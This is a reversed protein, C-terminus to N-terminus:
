GLDKAHQLGRTALVLAAGIRRREDEASFKLPDPNSLVREIAVLAAVAEDRQEQLSKLLDHM